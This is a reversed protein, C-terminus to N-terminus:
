KEPSEVCTKFPKKIQGHLQETVAAIVQEEVARKDLEKAETGEEAAKNGV